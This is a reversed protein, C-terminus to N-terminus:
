PKLESVHKSGLQYLVQVQHISLNDYLKTIETVAYAKIQQMCPLLKQM